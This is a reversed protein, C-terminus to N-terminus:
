RRIPLRSGDPVLGLEAAAEFAFTMHAGLFVPSFTCLHIDQLCFEPVDYIELATLIVFTCASWQSYRM